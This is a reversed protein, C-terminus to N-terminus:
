LRGSAPGIHIHAGTAKGRVASAFAFFTVGKGSLYRRVWVGEPQAPSVAVDFRGRHDFGLARHGASEGRASLPLPRGFASQFAQNMQQLDAETFSTQGEFHDILGIGLGSVAGYAIMRELAADTVATATADSARRGLSEAVDCIHRAQDLDRRASEKASQPAQALAQKRRLYRRGAAAILTTIQAESPHPTELLTRVIETDAADAPEQPAPAPQDLRNLIEALRIDEPKPRSLLYVAAALLLVVPLGLAALLRV